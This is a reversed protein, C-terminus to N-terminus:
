LAEKLSGAARATRDLRREAREAVGALGPNLQLQQLAASADEALRVARDAPRHLDAPIEGEQRTELLKASAHDMQGALEDAHVRVFTDKTRQLAVQHALLAGESSVAEIGGVQRELEARDLPGCGALSAVIAVWVSLTIGALRREPATTVRPTRM